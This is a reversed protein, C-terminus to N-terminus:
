LFSLGLGKREEGAFLVFLAVGRREEREGRKRKEQENVAAPLLEPQM